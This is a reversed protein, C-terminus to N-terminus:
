AYGGKFVKGRKVKAERRYQAQNQNKTGVVLNRSRYDLEDLNNHCAQYKYVTRNLKTNFVSWNLGRPNGFAWAVIRSFYVLRGGIWVQVHWRGGSQPKPTLEVVKDAKGEWIRVISCDVQIRDQPGFRRVERHRRVFWRMGNRGVPIEVEEEVGEM